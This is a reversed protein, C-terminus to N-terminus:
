LLSQSPVPQTFSQMNTQHKQETETRRQHLTYTELSWDTNDKIVVFIFLWCCKNTIHYIQYQTVTLLSQKCANKWFLCKTQAGVLHCLDSSKTKQQKSQKLRVKATIGFSFINVSDWCYVAAKDSVIM